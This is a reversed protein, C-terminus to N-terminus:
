KGPAEKLVMACAVHHDDWSGPPGPDLLPRDGLKTWPGLPHRATALGIRYGGPGWRQNDKPVGHYYLYYTEFDKFADCAEIVSEDWADKTGCGLIPNPGPIQLAFRFGGAPQARAPIALLMCTVAASLLYARM